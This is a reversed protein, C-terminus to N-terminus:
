LERELSRAIDRMAAIRAALDQAESAVGPASRADAEVLTRAEGFFAGRREAGEVARRMEALDDATRTEQTRLAAAQARGAAVDARLAALTARREELVASMVDIMGELERNTAAIDSELAELLAEREAYEAQLQRVYGGAAAGGLSGFQAGRFAGSGGGVLGGIVAGAAAGALAGEGVTSQLREARERLERQEPTEPVYAFPQGGQGGCGGLLSASVALALILKAASLRGAM